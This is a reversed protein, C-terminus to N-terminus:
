FHSNQIPSDSKSSLNGLTRSQKILPPAIGITRYEDYSDMLNELHEINNEPKEPTLAYNIIIRADAEGNDSIPDQVIPKNNRFISASINWWYVKESIDEQEPLYWRLDFDKGDANTFISSESNQWTLDRPNIPGIWFHPTHQWKERFRAGALYLTKALNTSVACIGGGRVIAGTGTRGRYYKWWSGLIDLLSYERGAIFGGEREQFKLLEISGLLINKIKNPYTEFMTAYESIIPAKSLRYNQRFSLLIDDNRMESLFAIPLVSEDGTINHLITTNIISDEVEFSYYGKFGLRNEAGLTM